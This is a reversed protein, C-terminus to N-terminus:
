WQVLGIQLQHSEVEVVAVEEKVVSCICGRKQNPEVGLM